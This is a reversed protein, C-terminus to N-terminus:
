LSSLYQHIFQVAMSGEGVATAMRKVSRSRVDGAVFVGPVSAELWFPARRLPWGKPLQGDKMLDPGTLIFGMADRELVGEVWDTRPQAGIFIFIASAPVTVQEGTASNAITIEELHDKGRVETVGSNLLVHINPTQEIQAVLYQSMGKALSDSRVVMTVNRAYLSFYMAAQGASNAGGVIYVDEGKYFMAESLAAGYYVGAGTLQEVGPVDLKRYSVGTAIMLAHCSIETGDVLRVIRYPDEIRLASVEQPTLIEAGFRTAQTVARRALDSGSLGSPFGLYNEIRSSTGAQGGPAEREIMLTRLGESAGYVAAALGAPGGGVIIVDYFPLSAKTSRGAKAAVSANDPRSLHTGDPFIVVPLQSADVGLSEITKMGEPDLEVDTWHYPIQNRALYDKLQHSLPSWRHGILRLGEFTPRYQARWDDLLDDLVPYLNENPPDWPKMLYYDLHVDNIAKIAAETDAYATLLARKAEPFLPIAKELLEVGSMVPMRQDVLFLAVPQERLKLKELADLAAAGSGARLVQYDKGYKRRLDREIAGLVEPEDDVTLIVPKAM